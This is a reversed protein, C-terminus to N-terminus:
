EWQSRLKEAHEAFRAKDQERQSRRDAEWAALEDETMDFGEIRDMAALTTAIEEPSM